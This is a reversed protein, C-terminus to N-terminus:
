WSNSRQVSGPLVTAVLQKQNNIKSEFYSDPVPRFAWGPNKIQLHKRDLQNTRYRQGQWIDRPRQFIPMDSSLRASSRLRLVLEPHMLPLPRSLVHPNLAIDVIHGAKKVLARTGTYGMPFIRQNPELGNSRIYDKLREAVRKPIFIGESQRVNKPNHLLLKRDDVDGAKLKLVEGIRIGGRAM